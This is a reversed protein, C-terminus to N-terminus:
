KFESLAILLLTLGIMLAALFGTVMFGIMFTELM